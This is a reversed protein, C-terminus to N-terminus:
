SGMEDNEEQMIQKLTNYDPPNESWYRAFVYNLCFNIDLVIPKIEEDVLDVNSIKGFTKKIFGYFQGNTMNMVDKPIEINLKEKIILANEKLVSKTYNIRNRTAKKQNIQNM